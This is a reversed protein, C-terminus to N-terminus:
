AARQCTFTTRRNLDGWEAIQRYWETQLIQLCTITGLFTDFLSKDSASVGHKKLVRAIARFFDHDGVLINQEAILHSTEGQIQTVLEAETLNTNSRSIALRAFEGADPEITRLSGFPFKELNLRLDHRENVIRLPAIRAALEMAEARVDAASIPTKTSRENSRTHIEIVHEVLSPGDIIMDMFVDHHNSLLLDAPYSRSPHVFRDYDFDALFKIGKMAYREVLAAAEIVNVRGGSGPLVRLDSSEHKKLVFYDDEGEVVLLLKTIEGRVMAISNFVTNVNLAERM